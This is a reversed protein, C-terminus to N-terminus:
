DITLKGSTTTNTLITREGDKLTIGGLIFLDLNLYPNDKQPLYIGASINQYDIIITKLLIKYEM